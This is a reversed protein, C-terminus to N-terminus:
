NTILHYCHHHRCYCPHVHHHQPVSPPSLKAVPLCFLFSQICFKHVVFFKFSNGLFIFPGLEHKMNYRRNRSIPFFICFLVLHVFQKSLKWIHIDTSIMLIISETSSYVRYLHSHTIITIDICAPWHKVLLIQILCVWWWAIIRIFSLLFTSWIVIGVRMTWNKFLVKEMMILSWKFRFFPSSIFHPEMFEPQSLM